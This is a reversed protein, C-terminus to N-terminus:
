ESERAEGKDGLAIVKFVNPNTMRHDKVAVNRLMVHADALEKRVNSLEQQLEPVCAHQALDKEVVMAHCTPCEIKRMACTSQEHSGLEGRTVKARCLRCDVKVFKCARLHERVSSPLMREGCGPTM